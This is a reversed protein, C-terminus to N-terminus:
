NTLQFKEHLRTKKLSVVGVASLNCLYAGCAYMIPMFDAAAYKYVRAPDSFCQYYVLVLGIANM